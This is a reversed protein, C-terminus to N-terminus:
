RDLRSNTYGVKWSRCILLWQIYAGMTTLWPMQLDLSLLHSCCSWLSMGLIPRTTSDHTSQQRISGGDDLDVHTLEEKSNARPPLSAADSLATLLMRITTFALFAYQMAQWFVGSLTDMPTRRTVIPTEDGDDSDDALLGFKELRNPSAPPQQPVDSEPPRLLALLKTVIDWIFWGECINGCVGRGIILESFIETVLVKLPPNSLDEPPLLHSLVGQILLQRWVAENEAQDLSALSEPEFPVPSLAPHPNIAHYIERPDAVLLSTHSTSYATRYATVHVNVLEPLEDLLLAELGVARIRQELARTCHAIIHVVQDTFDQDPTIRSYWAQVFDKIIISILAYLQLDVQNSSTLPPLSESLPKSINRARNGETGALQQACLTRKIFAVTAEDSYISDLKKSSKSRNHRPRSTNNSGVSTNSKTRAHSRPMARGTEQDM